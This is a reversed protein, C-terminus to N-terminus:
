KLGIWVRKVDNKNGILYLNEGLCWFDYVCKWIDDFLVDFRIKWKIYIFLLLELYLIKICVKYVKLIWCILFGFKKVLLFKVRLKKVNEGSFFVILFDMVERVKDCCKFKLKLVLEKIDCM